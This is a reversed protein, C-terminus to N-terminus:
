MFMIFGLSWTNKIEPGFDNKFVKSPSYRCYIGLDDWVLTGLVDFSVKNQNLGKFKTECEVKDLEFHNDVRAYANWNLIGAIGLNLKKVIKQKFMLPVQVSWQNLNSSRNKIKEGAEPVSPYTGITVVQSGEGRELMMPRKMSYSRHHIGVGLSLTQGHLSNYKIACINLLGVEFSNNIANLSHKVGMGLYFGNTTLSWHKTSEEDDKLPHQYTFDNENDNDTSVTAATADSTAVDPTAANLQVMALLAMFVLSLKRM